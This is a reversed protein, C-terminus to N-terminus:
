GDDSKLMGLIIVTMAILLLIRMGRSISMATMNEIVTILLLFMMATIMIKKLIIADVGDNDDDKYIRIITM